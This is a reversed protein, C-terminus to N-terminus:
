LCQAALRHLERHVRPVLLVLHRTEQGELNDKRRLLEIRTTTAGSGRVGILDVPFGLRMRWIIPCGPAAPM